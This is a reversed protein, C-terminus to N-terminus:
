IRVDVGGGHALTFGFREFAPAPAADAMALSVAEDDFTADGSDPRAGDGGANEDNSFLAFGIGDKGLDLGAEAIARELERQHRQLESLAEPKEATLMAQVTRDAGIELRVNVRGLEPPDLRIDFSRGGDAFRKVMMQAIAPIQGAALRFQTPTGARAALAHPTEARALTQQGTELRIDGTESSGTLTLPEMPQPLASGQGSLLAALGSQAFQAPNPAAAQPPVPLVPQANASSPQPPASFQSPTRAASDSRGTDPAPAPTPRASREPGAERRAFAALRTENGDAQAAPAPPQGPMARNQSDTQADQAQSAPVPERSHMDARADQSPPAPPVASKGSTSNSKDSPATDVRAAPEFDKSRDPVADAQKGTNQVTSQVAKAGSDESDDEAAPADPTSPNARSVPAASDTTEGGEDDSGSATGSVAPLIPAEDPTSLSPSPQSSLAPADSPRYPRIDAQGREDSAAGASLQDSSKPHVVAKQGDAEIMEGELPEDLEAAIDEGEELSALVKPASVETLRSSASADGARTQLETRADADNKGISHLLASFVEGSNEPADGSGGFIEATDRPGAFLIELLM